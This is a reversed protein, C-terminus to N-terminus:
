SSSQVSVSSNKRSSSVQSTVETYTDETEVVEETFTDSETVTVYQRGDSNVSSLKNPDQDYRGGVSSAISTNRTVETSTQGSLSTISGSRSASQSAISGSRSASQSISGSRSASQSVTSASRSASQSAISGSRSASQSAISASRSASVGASAAAGGETPLLGAWRMVALWEEFSLEGSGDLDAEDLMGQVYDDDSDDGLEKAVRRLHDFTIGGEGGERFLDYAKTVEALMDKAEIKSTMMELFEDFSITGSADTDVTAILTEIEADDPEFGLARMATKLEGADITGSADADFLDFAERIEQRQEETVGLSLNATRSM